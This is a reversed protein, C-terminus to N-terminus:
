NHFRNMALATNLLISHRNRACVAVRKQTAAGAPAWSIGAGMAGGVAGGTLWNMGNETGLGVIGDFMTGSVNACDSLMDRASLGLVLPTLASNPM